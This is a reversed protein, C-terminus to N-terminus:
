QVVELQTVTLKGNVKDAQFRVNDGPKIQDLWAPDTVRFIMTMAPMDLNALPGHRLTLKGRAKDVKRVMGESFASAMAEHNMVAQNMGGHGSSSDAWAPVALLLTAILSSLTRKM